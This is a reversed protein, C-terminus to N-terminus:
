GGAMPTMVAIEDGAEVVRGLDGPMEVGAGNVLITPPRPMALIKRMVGGKLQGSKGALALAKKLTTGEPAEFDFEATVMKRDVFGAVKLHVTMLKKQKRNFM